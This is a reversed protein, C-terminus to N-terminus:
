VVQVKRVARLDSGDGGAGACLHVNAHDRRVHVPPARQGPVPLHAHLQGHNREAALFGPGCPFLIRRHVVESM